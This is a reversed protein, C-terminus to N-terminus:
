KLCYDEFIIKQQSKAANKEQLHKTICSFFVLWVQTLLLIRLLVYCYEASDM